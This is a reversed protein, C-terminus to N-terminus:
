HFNHRWIGTDVYRDPDLIHRYVLRIGKRRAGHVSSVYNSYLGVLVALVMLLMLLITIYRRSARNTVFDSLHALYNQLNSM